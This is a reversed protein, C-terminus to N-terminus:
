SHREEDMPKPRLKM